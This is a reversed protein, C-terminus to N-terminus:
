VKLVYGVGIVTKIKKGFAGLKKRLAEIHKDVTRTTMSPDGKWVQELILGRTLVRNTNRVM